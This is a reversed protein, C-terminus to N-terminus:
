KIQAIPFNYTHNHFKTKPLWLFPSLHAYIDIWLRIECLQTFSDRAIDSCIISLETSNFPYSNFNQIALDDGMNSKKM